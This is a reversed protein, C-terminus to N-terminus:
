KVLRKVIREDFVKDVLLYNVNKDLKFETIQKIIEKTLPYRGIFVSKQLLKYNLNYLEDRIWDRLKKKKEPIDFIVVRYKGDWKKNLTKKISFIKQFLSKGNQTLHFKGGEERVIGQIVLRKIAQNFASKTTKEIKKNIASEDMGLFIRTPRTFSYRSSFFIDLSMEGFELLALCLYEGLKFGGGLATRVFRKSFRDSPM